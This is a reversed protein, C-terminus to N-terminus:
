SLCVCVLSGLGLPSIDLCVGVHVPHDDGPLGGCAITRADRHDRGGNGCIVRVIRVCAAVDIVDDAAAVALFM